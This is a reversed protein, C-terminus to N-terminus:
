CPGLEGNEILKVLEDLEDESLAFDANLAELDLELYEDSDNM